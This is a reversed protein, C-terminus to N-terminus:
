LNNENRTECRRQQFSGNNSNKRVFIDFRFVKKINFVHQPIKTLDYRKQIIEFDVNLKLNNYFTLLNIETTLQYLCAM